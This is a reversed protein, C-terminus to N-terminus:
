KETEISNFVFVDNVAIAWLVIVCLVHQGHSQPRQYSEEEKGGGPGPAPSPLSPSHILALGVLAYAAKDSQTVRGSSVGEEGSILGSGQSPLLSWLTHPQLCDALLEIIQVM